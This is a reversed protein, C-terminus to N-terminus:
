TVETAILYVIAGEMDFTCEDQNQSTNLIAHIVNPTWDEAELFKDPVPTGPDEELSRLFEMTTEFARGDISALKLAYELPTM